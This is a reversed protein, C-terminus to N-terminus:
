PYDVRDCTWICLCPVVLEAAKHVTKLSFEVDISHIYVLYSTCDLGWAPVRVVSVWSSASLEVKFAVPVDQSVYAAINQSRFSHKGCFFVSFTVAVQEVHHEHYVATVSRANGFNNRYKWDILFRYALTDILLGGMPVNWTDKWARVMRCLHRMTGNTQRDFSSVAAIEPRPDTVKWSGGGNSDPYRFTDDAMEIGPVIEFKMADSFYIDTVQGDGKIASSPYTRLLSTRLDQLM